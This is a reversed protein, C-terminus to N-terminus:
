PQAAFITLLLESDDLVRYRPCQGSLRESNELIIPVGEGRKDMLTRRDTQLWEVEPPVPVKALLSTLTENRAFQRYPLSEVTLTNPLAGPSYLELRDLYLRLRIKSGYIAYDRHAVANVLAEFVASMDFQPVDRRGLDKFAFVRMNRFVFRCAEIVQQDLPGTFDKADVQYAGAPSEPVADAGRYAVAQVFANPLWRRPDRSALLVGAVTPRLVGDDARAIMGLKALLDNPDDGSRTTRFRRWLEPELDGVTATPVIQEDFRILRTQSRQQFLRALLEPAMERKSSGVRHLYGGPSRHVQLSKSVDVQLVACAAGTPDPLELKRTLVPLPPTILTQAANVVFQELRDLQALPVGTVQRTKDDVGLLLTGGRTNAFAALEDALSNPHPEIRNGRLVVTKLELESDEGLRIRAILREPYNQDQSM